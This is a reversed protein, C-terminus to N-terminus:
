IKIQDSDFLIAIAVAYQATHSISVKVIVTKKNFNVTASPKGSSDKSIEIDIMRLPLDLCKITAEKAAFIGALHQYPDSRKLSYKLESETYISTYFKLNSKVKKQRFRKVEIIDIGFGLKTPRL